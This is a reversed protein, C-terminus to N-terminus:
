LRDSAIGVAGIGAEHAAAMMRVVQGYRVGAAPDDSTSWAMANSKWIEGVGGYAEPYGIGTFGAQAAELYLARPFEEAEEWAASFPAIAREGFRKLQSRLAQHEETEFLYSM